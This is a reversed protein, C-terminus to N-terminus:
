GLVCILLHLPLNEVLWGSNPSQLFTPQGATESNKRITVKVEDARVFFV